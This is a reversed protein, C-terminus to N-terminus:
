PFYVPSLAVTARKRSMSWIFCYIFVGCDPVIIDSQIRSDEVIKLYMM